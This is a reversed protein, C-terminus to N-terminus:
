RSQSLVTQAQAVTMKVQPQASWTAIVKNSPIDDSTVSLSATDDFALASSYLTSLASLAILRAMLKM